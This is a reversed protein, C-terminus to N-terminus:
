AIHCYRGGQNYALLVGNYIKAFPVKGGSRNKQGEISSGLSRIHSFDVGWGSM